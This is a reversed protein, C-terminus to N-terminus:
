WLGRINWHGDNEKPEQPLCYLVWQLPWEPAFPPWMLRFLSCPTTFEWGPTFMVERPISIFRFKKRPIPPNWSFCSCGFLHDPGDDVTFFCGDFCCKVSTGRYHHAFYLKWLGFHVSWRDPQQNRPAQCCIKQIWEPKGYGQKIYFFLKTFNTNM